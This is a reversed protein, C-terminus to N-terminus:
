TCSGHFSFGIRRIQGAQKKEAIWREMGWIKLQSWQDSDTIMHLLYYDIYHTKLRNLSQYFYKDFDAYSKLMVLPLKTAIYIKERVQNKEFITGLTEESGSYMWATDFYNVGGDISRMIMEETKRMDIGTINRPFRMCGFGLVSLQHGSKKDTRYQMNINQM